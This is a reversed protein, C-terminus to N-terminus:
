LCRTTEVATDLSLLKLAHVCLEIPTTDARAELRLTGLRTTEHKLYDNFVRSRMSFRVILGDKNSAGYYFHEVARIRQEFVHEEAILWLACIDKMRTSAVLEPLIAWGEIVAAKGWSAHAEAVSSIAPWLGRHATLADELLEDISRSLYYERYDFGAMPHLAPHSIASTVARVAIGIDDTNVHEYDLKRAIAQALTSKGCKPAGGILIVKPYVTHDKEPMSQRM